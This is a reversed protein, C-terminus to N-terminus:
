INDESAWFLSIIQKLIYKNKFFANLATSMVYVEICKRKKYM